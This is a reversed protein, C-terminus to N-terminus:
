KQYTILYKRRSKNKIFFTNIFDGVILCEKCSKECICNDLHFQILKLISGDIDKSNGELYKLVRKNFYDNLLILNKYSHVKNAIQLVTHQSRNLHSACFINKNDKNIHNNKIMYDALNNAQFIGLPTLKSDIIRGFILGGTLKLPKNHFGNGHRILYISTYEKNKLNNLKTTILNNELNQIGITDSKLKGTTFYQYEKKDPFGDYIIEFTWENQSYNIKICTCNAFHKKEKSDLIPKLITEKIRNHHTVLYINKSTDNITNIFSVFDNWFSESSCNNYNGPVFELNNNYTCNSYDNSYFNNCLNITTRDNNNETSTTDAFNTISRISKNETDTGYKVIEASCPLIFIKNLNM